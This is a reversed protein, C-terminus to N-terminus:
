GNNDNKTISNIAERAKSVQNSVDINAALGSNAYQNIPNYKCMNDPMIGSQLAQPGYDWASFLDIGLSARLDRENQSPTSVM